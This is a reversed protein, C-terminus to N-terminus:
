PAPNDLQFLVANGSAIGALTLVLSLFFFAMGGIGAALLSTRDRKVGYAVVGFAVSQLPFYRIFGMHELFAPINMERCAFLDSWSFFGVKAQIASFLIMPPVLFIGGFSKSLLFHAAFDRVSETGADNKISLVTSTIVFALLPGWIRVHAGRFSVGAPWVHRLVHRFLDGIASPHAVEVLCILITTLIGALSAAAWPRISQWARM